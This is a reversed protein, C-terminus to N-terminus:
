VNNTKQLTNLEVFCLCLLMIGIFDKCLPMIQHDNALELHYDTALLNFRMKDFQSYICTQILYFHNPYTSHAPQPSLFSLTHHHHPLIHHSFTLFNGEERTRELNEYM